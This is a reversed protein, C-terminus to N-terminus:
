SVDTPRRPEISVAALAVLLYIALIIVTVALAFMVLLRVTQWWARTQRDFFDATM